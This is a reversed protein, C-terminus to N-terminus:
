CLNNKMAREQGFVNVLVGVYPELAACLGASRNNIPGNQGSINVIGM